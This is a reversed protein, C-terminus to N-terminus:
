KIDIIRINSNPDGRIRIPQYKSKYINYNNMLNKRKQNVISYVNKM